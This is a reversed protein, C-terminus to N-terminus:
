KKTKKKKNNTLYNERWKKILSGTSPVKKGQERAEKRAEGREVRRAIFISIEYLLFLPVGILFQTVVDPPTLIAAVMLIGIIAHRRYTKMGEATVLGVKALFYVLIPLEFILGAPITFMVMYTLFSRLQPKNSVNFVEYSGLFNIAFPAIVFYGFLVGILFLVSCTFVIGRTYKREEPYLGPKIFSWFEYFVNLFLCSLAM